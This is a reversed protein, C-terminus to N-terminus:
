IGNMNKLIYHVSLGEKISRISVRSIWSNAISTMFFSGHSVLLILVTMTRCKYM